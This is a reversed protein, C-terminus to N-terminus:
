FIGLSRLSSFLKFTKYKKIESNDFVLMHAEARDSETVGHVLGVLSNGPIKWAVISSHTAM